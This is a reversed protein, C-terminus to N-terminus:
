HGTITTRIQTAKQQTAEMSNLLAVDADSLPELNDSAEVLNEANATITMSAMLAMMWFVKKM